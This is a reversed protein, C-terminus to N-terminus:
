SGLDYKSGLVVVFDSMRVFAVVVADFLIVGVLEVGNSDVFAINVSVNGDSVFNVSGIWCSVVCVLNAADVCVTNGGSAVAAVAATAVCVIVVVTGVGPVFLSVSIIDAIREIDAVIEVFSSLVVIM